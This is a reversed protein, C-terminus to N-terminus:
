KTLSTRAKAECLSLQGIIFGRTNTHRRTKPCRQESENRQTTIHHTFAVDSTWLHILGMPQRRALHHLRKAQKDGSPTPWDHAIVCAATNTDIACCWLTLQSEMPMMLPCIYYVGRHYLDFMCTHSQEVRLNRAAIGTQTSIWNRWKQEDFATRWEPSHCKCWKIATRQVTVYM